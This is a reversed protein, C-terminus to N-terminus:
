VARTGGGRRGDVARPWVRGCVSVVRVGFGPVFAFGVISDVVVARRRARAAAVDETRGAAAVVVVM